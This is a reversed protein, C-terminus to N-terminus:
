HAPAGSTSSTGAAPPPTSAPPTVPVSPPSQIATLAAKIADLDSAAQTSQGLQAFQALETVFQTPDAAKDPSQNKLEAVLLQLFQDEKPAAGSLAQASSSSAASPAVAPTNVVPTSLVNTLSSSM